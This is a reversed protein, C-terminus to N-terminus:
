TGLFHSRIIEATALAGSAKKLPGVFKTNFYWSGNFFGKLKVALIAIGKPGISDGFLHGFDLLSKVYEGIPLSCGNTVLLNWTMHTKVNFHFVKLLSSENGTAM